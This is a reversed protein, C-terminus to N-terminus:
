LSGDTLTLKLCTVKVKVVIRDQNWKVIWIQLKWFIYMSKPVHQMDVNNLYM